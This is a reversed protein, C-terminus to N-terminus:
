LWAESRTWLERALEADQALASARRPVCDAYLTGTQVEDDTACFVSTRAGQAPSAMGCTLLARAPWPVHRYADSAVDGPDAIVSRRATGAFRRALEFGFLVNCLKSVAYERVGTLTRTSRTLASWDIARVQEHSGSGVHVVRADPVLSHKLAETLAFHGLYNVGFALEFGQATRGRAGGVGANLVLVDVRRRAIEAAARQVSRLDSLDLPVLAAGLAAAVPAGRAESRCALTLAFGRAALAEATARGVGTNAGTIVAHRM